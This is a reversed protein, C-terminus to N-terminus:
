ILHEGRDLYWPKSQATITADSIFQSFIKLISVSHYPILVCFLLPGALTLYMVFEISYKTYAMVLLKENFRTRQYDIMYVINSFSCMAVETVLYLLTYSTFGSLYISRRKTTGSSWMNLIIPINISYINYIYYICTCINIM